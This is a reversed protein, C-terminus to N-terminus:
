RPTRGNDKHILLVTGYTQTHIVALEVVDSDPILIRQGLNFIEKVLHISSLYEGLDVKPGTIVLESDSLRINRLGSEGGTVSQILVGYHTKTQRISWGIEHIEHILYEHLKQLLKHNYEDIVDNDVGLIFFLM